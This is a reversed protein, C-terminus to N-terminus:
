LVDIGPTICGRISGPRTATPRSAVGVPEGAPKPVGTRFLSLLIRENGWEM